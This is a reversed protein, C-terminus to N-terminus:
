NGSDVAPYESENPPETLFPMRVDFLGPAPVSHKVQLAADAKQRFRIWMFYLFWGQILDAFAGSASIAKDIVVEMATALDAEGTASLVARAALEEGAGYLTNGRALALLDLFQHDLDLGDYAEMMLRRDTHAAAKRRVRTLVADDALEADLVALAGRVDIDEGALDPDFDIADAAAEFLSRYKPQKLSEWAAWMRGILLRLNLMIVASAYRPEDTGPDVGATQAYIVQKNLIALDNAFHGGLVFLEREDAPVGDLDARTLALHYVDVM